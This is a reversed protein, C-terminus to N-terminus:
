SLLWDPSISTSASMFTAPLATLAPSIHESPINRGGQLHLASVPFSYSNLKVHEVGSVCDPKRERLSIYLGSRVCLAVYLVPPFFKKKGQLSLMIQEPTSNQLAGFTIEASNDGVAM